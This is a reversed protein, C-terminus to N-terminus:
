QRQVITTTTNTDITQIVDGATRATNTVVLPKTPDLGMINYLELLMTAQTPTLGPNNELTMIHALETTLEVRVEDAIEAATPSVTLTQVKADISILKTSNNDMEVRIDEVTPVAVGTTNYALALSSVTAFVGGGPQIIYPSPFDDSYLIGNVETYHDIVVQWGNILFYMDGAYQTEGLPDGGITRLAPQFKSNQDVQVWEKWDSYLDTKVSIISEGPAIYILKNEGDFICKHYLLWNDWFYYM